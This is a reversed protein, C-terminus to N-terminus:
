EAGKLDWTMLKGGFSYTWVTGEVLALPAGRAGREVLVIGHGLADDGARFCGGAGPEGAACPFGSSVFSEGSYRLLIASCAPGTNSM